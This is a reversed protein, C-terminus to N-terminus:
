PLFHLLAEFDKAKLDDELTALKAKLTSITVSELTEESLKKDLDHIEIDKLKILEDKAEIHKRLDEKQKENESLISDLARLKGKLEKYKKVM